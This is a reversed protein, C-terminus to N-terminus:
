TILRTTHDHSVTLLDFIPKGPLTIPLPLRRTLADQM